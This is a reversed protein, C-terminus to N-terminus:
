EIELHPMDEPHAYGWALSTGFQFYAKHLMDEAVCREIHAIVTTTLKRGWRQAIQRRNLVEGAGILHPVETYKPM